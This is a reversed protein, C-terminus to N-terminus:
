SYKKAALCQSAIDRVEILIKETVEKSISDLLAPSVQYGLLSKIKMLFSSRAEGLASNVAMRSFIAIDVSKYAIKKSAEVEDPDPDIWEGGSTEPPEQLRRDCHSRIQRIAEAGHRMFIADLSQEIDQVSANSNV